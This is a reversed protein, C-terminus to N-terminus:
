PRKKAEAKKEIAKISKDVARRFDLIYREWSVGAVRADLVVGSTLTKVVPKAISAATAVEVDFDAIYAQQTTFAVYARSSGDGTARRRMSKTIAKRASRLAPLARASGIEGLAEATRMKITASGKRLWRSLYNAAEDAQENGHLDEITKSRNKGRPWQITQRWVFERDHDASQLLANRAAQRRAQHVATAAFKRCLKTLSKAKKSLLAQEGQEAQAAQRLEERLLTALAIAVVSDKAKRVENKSRPQMALLLERGRKVLGNRRTTELLEASAVQQLREFAARAARSRRVDHNLASLLRWGDEALGNEFAWIGRQARAFASDSDPRQALQALTQRLQEVTKHERVESRAIRRVSAGRRVVFVDGRKDIRGLVRSGDTLELMGQATLASGSSLSLGLVAIWLKNRM